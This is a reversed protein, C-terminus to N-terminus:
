QFLKAPAAEREDDVVSELAMTGSSMPPAVLSMWCLREAAVSSCWARRRSATATTEAM